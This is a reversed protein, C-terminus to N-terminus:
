GSQIMAVMSSGLITLPFVRQLYSTASSHTQAIQGAFGPYDNTSVICFFEQLHGLLPKLPAHSKDPQISMGERRGIIGEIDPTVGEAPFVHVMNEIALGPGREVAPKSVQDRSAQVNFRYVLSTLRKDAFM